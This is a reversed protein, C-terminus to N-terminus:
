FIELNNFVAFPLSYLKISRGFLVVFLSQRAILRSRLWGDAWFYYRGAKFETWTYFRPLQM